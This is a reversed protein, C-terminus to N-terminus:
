PRPNLSLTGGASSVVLITRPWTLNFIGGSTTVTASAVCEIGALGCALTSSTTVSTVAGATASTFLQISAGTGTTVGTSNVSAVCNEGRVTAWFYAGAPIYTVSGAVVAEAMGVRAGVSAVVNTSTLSNAQNQYTVAVFDGIAISTSAQVFIYESGNSAAVWTGIAFPPSPTEPTLSASVVYYQSPDVGGFPTTGFKTPTAM